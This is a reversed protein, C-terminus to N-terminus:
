ESTRRIVYRVIYEDAYPADGILALRLDTPVKEFAQRVQLAHNEPELRSVYSSIATNKWAWGSWYRRVNRDLEADAGYPIFTSRKGYERLYYNQITVADTRDRQPIDDGAERLVSVLHPGPRNWKKRLRETGDVNIAVPYPSCGRCPSFANAANMYLAVDARHALLHFTSLFTHALTDLYKHRVTPLYILRVGRYTPDPYRNRCYVTVQHGREALRVSLEETFTEFGGYNSPIGRGGILAIRM